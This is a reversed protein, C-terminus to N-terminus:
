ANKKWAQDYIWLSQLSVGANGGLTMSWWGRPTSMHLIPSRFDKDESEIWAEKKIQLKNLFIFFISFSSLCEQALSFSETSLQMVLM